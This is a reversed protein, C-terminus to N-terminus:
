PSDSSSGGVWEPRITPTDSKLPNTGLYFEDMDRVGDGDLDGFAEALGQKVADHIEGVLGALWNEFAVPEDPNVDVMLVGVQSRANVQGAENAIAGRLLTLIYHGNWRTTWGGGAPALTCTAEIRRNSGVAKYESLSAVLPETLPVVTGDPAIIEAEFAAIDGDSLSTVDIPAPTPCTSNQRQLQNRSQAPM